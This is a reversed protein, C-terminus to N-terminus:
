GVSYADYKALRRQCLELIKQPTKQTKKKFVHVALIADEDVRYVIRWIVNDDNIRLEHCRKGISPMPRSLPLSLSDGQQLQRLYYGIKLRANRSVPPTKIRAESHLLVLLKDKPQKPADYLSM